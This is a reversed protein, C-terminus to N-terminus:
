LRGVIGAVVKDLAGRNKNVVALARQGFAKCEEPSAMLHSVAGSLEEAGQVLQVGGDVKLRQYIPEFNFVHPGSLVPIGWAAPELPNHGGREVLSGGVFAIDSAGYLMMLEGMTDGLYVRAVAPDEGRSRRAVTLGKSLAKNAVSDFR